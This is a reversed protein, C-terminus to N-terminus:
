AEPTPTETPTPTDTPSPTATPEETPEPTPEQTPEETPTPEVTETPEPTPEVTETPEPTETLLPEFTIPGAITGSAENSYGSENGAQDLATVVYFYTGSEMGCDTYSSEEAEAVFDYPKGSELSRYVKYGALDEETNDKWDLCFCDGTPPQARDGRPAMTSLLLELQYIRLRKPPNPPSIVTITDTGEFPLGAVEGSVTLTVDGTTNGLCAILAQRDFKVMLDPIGDGDYDDVTTSKTNAFVCENDEFTGNDNKDFCLQVTDVDIDNVDYGDPLEIYATVWRGEDKTNLTDPKIDVTAAVPGPSPSPPPISVPFVFVQLTGGDVLLLASSATVIGLLLILILVTAALVRRM